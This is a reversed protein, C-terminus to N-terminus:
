PVPDKTSGVAFWHNGLRLLTDFEDDVPSREVVVPTDGPQDDLGGAAVIRYRTLIDERVAGAAIQVARAPGVVNTHMLYPELDRMDEPIRGEHADAYGQLARHFVWALKHKAKARAASLAMRAKEPDNFDFADPELGLPEKALEYWDEETLLRLEPIAREPMGEALAKYSQVRRIWSKIAEASPDNAAGSEVSASRSARAQARLGGVEGRLRLLELRDGELEENRARLGMLEANRSELLSRAEALDRLASANANELQATQSQLRAARIGQHV